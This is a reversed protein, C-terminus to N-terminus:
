SLLRILENPATSMIVGILLWLAGTASIHLGGTSAAEIKTHAEELEQERIAKETKITETIIRTKQEFNNETLSIREHILSLNKEIAALRNDISSNPDIHTWSYGRGGGSMSISAHGSGTIVRGGYPPFSKLWRIGAQLLSPQGFLERTEKIGWAVTAIGLIQLVLGTIRISAEDSNLFTYAIALATVSVARWLHNAKKIWIWIAKIWLLIKKM